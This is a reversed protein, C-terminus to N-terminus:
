PPAFQVEATGIGDMEIEVEIDAGEPKLYYTGAWLGGFSCADPGLEPKSGTICTDSWDGGGTIRVPVGGYNLVRVVIISSVGIGRNPDSSNSVIWYTWGAKPTPSAEPQDTPAAPPTPTLQAPPPEASPQPPPPPLVPVQVQDFRVMAWGWGDVTVEVSTELGKPTITYTWAGLGGFECADPGYDPKYGTTCTAQFGNSRIEVELWPRGSVVVAIASHVYETPESGSTNEVVSGVWRTETQGGTQFFEVRVFDRRDLSVDLATGLDLPTIRYTGTKLAGFECADPGYEPKTGTKCTTSWAGSEIKVEQGAPRGIVRVVVTGYERGTLDKLHETIRGQWRAPQPAPPAPPQPTVTPTPAPWRTPTAAPLPGAPTPSPIPTCPLKFFDVRTYSKGDLFVEFSMGLGEPEVFYTGKTMPAFEVVGPGYEPKTGTYGVTEFSGLSRVRVPRGGPGQVGVRLVSGVLGLDHWQETIEAKWCGAGQASSPREEPMLLLSAGVVLMGTLALLFWRAFTKYRNM